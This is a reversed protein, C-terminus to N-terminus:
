DDFDNTMMLPMRSWLWVVSDPSKNLIKKVGVDNVCLANGNADVVIHMASFFSVKM